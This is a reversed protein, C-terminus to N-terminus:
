FPMFSGFDDDDMNDEDTPATTEGTLDIEGQIDNADVSMQSQKDDNPATKSESAANPQPVSPRPTQPQVGTPEKPETSEAHSNGYQAILSDLISMYMQRKDPPMYDVQQKIARSCKNLDDIFNDYAEVVPNEYLAEEKAADRKSEDAIAALKKELEPTNFQDVIKDYLDDFEGNNLRNVLGAVTDSIEFKGFKATLPTEMKKQWTSKHFQESATESLRGYLDKLFEVASSVTERNMIDDNGFQVSAEIIHRM